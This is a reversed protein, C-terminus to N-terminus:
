RDRWLASPDQVTAGDQLVDRIDSFITLASQDEGTVQSFFFGSGERPCFFVFGLRPSQPSIWPGFSACLPSDKDGSSSVAKSTTVNESRRAREVKVKGGEGLPLRRMALGRTSGSRPQEPDCWRREGGYGAAPTQFTFSGDM